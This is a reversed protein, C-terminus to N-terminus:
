LVERLALGYAVALSPDFAYEGTAAFNISSAQIVQAPLNLADGMFVDFGRLKCTGGCLIIKDVPRTNDMATYFELSRRIEKVLEGLGDRLSLDLQMQAADAGALEDENLILADEEKMTQAQAFDVGYMDAMSRTLLNGGVPLTRTFKLKGALTVVLNTREAGIDLIAAVSDEAASIEHRYLRWLAIAPLDLATLMLGFRHLLAHYQYTLALPAAAFLIELQKNGEVEEEGLVIHQVVLEDLPVPMVKEAELLVAKNLERPSMQPLSIHRTVVKDGGIASIIETGALGHQGVMEELIGSLAEENLMDGFIGPPTPYRAVTVPEPMSLDPDLSVFKIEREGIDLAACSIKRPILKKLLKKM